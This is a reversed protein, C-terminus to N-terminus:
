EAFFAEVKKYSEDVYAKFDERGTKFAKAWEEIAKRGDEPLWSAQDVATQAVREFQDQLMSMAQFTNNFTAQNFEVMQKLLQKQDM